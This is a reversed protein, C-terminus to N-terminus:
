AKRARRMSGLYIAALALVAGMVDMADTPRKFLVIDWLFALTPQLLLILGATTTPVKNLARSIVIWGLAQCLVGYAVMLVWSRTDAIAFSEGQVHGLVALMAASVLSIVALNAAASLRPSRSQSYRLVILYGAYTAATALGFYIGRKYNSDLADWDVGVLMFLGALALPISLVYRWDPRERLVLIGFAALFFVQLNGMITALGPGIYDIARHWVTLDIAFFVAAVLALLFPVWGRWLAERRIVVWVLLFVGGFFNRYFGAMTPGVDALKVFVPSFSILTAGIMLQAIGSRYNNGSQRSIM